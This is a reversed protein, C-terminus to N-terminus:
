HTEQALAWRAQELLVPTPVSVWEPAIEVAVARQLLSISVVLRHTNRVLLVVGETGRLPGAEVRVRQGARLFPWPKASLQAAQIRQLADIEHPEVPLAHHGDGVIRIVGPATVIKHLIECAMRCFVYGAFLARDVQKVRDSWRRHERFCPLFVDYGRLRLQQASYFERGAWVQIAFWAPPETSTSASTM